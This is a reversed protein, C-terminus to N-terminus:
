AGLYAKRVREDHSLDEAEGELVISGVELIYARSALKLALRANQEVMLISIGNQNLDAIIKAIEKVVLPSLGLSLEDMLLLRPKSMLGRAISLMQQEGGSLSGAIQKTKNRLVPFWQYVKELDSIIEARNKRLYAGMLLNELVTMPSFIMRGEPVQAIGAKVISAPPMTDIREACFLIEGSTPRKLGSITRMCTTKGAGNAGIIGVIEGAHMCLSVNKLATSRGYHVTLNKAELLM